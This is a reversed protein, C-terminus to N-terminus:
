FCVAAYPKNFRHRPSFYGKAYHPCHRPKSVQYRWTKVARTHYSFTGLSCRVHPHNFSTKVSVRVSAPVTQVAGLLMGAAIFGLLAEKM